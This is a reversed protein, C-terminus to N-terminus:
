CRVACPSISFLSKRYKAALKSIYWPNYGTLEGIERGSHGEGRLELAKLRREVNKDRKQRRAERIDALEEETIEYKMRKDDGPDIIDRKEM